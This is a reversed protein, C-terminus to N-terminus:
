AGPQVSPSAPPGTPPSPGAPVPEGAQRARLDFFLLTGTLAIFSATVADLLITGLMFLPGSDTAPAALDLPLFLIAAAIAGILLSVLLVGFVRWWQGRVLEGSRSLGDVAGLGEVVIAQATVYWRVFLYIGPLVLLVLGLLTGLGALVVGGIVPLAAAGGRRLADVIRPRRGEGLALVAQVHMATVLPTIILTYSANEGSALTEEPYGSFLQGGALGLVVLDVPVVVVFAIAAFTGFHHAYLSL